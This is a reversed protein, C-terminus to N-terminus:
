SRMSDSNCTTTWVSLAIIRVGFAHIVESSGALIIWNRPPWKRDCPHGAMSLGKFRANRLGRTALRTRTPVSSYGRADCQCDERNM